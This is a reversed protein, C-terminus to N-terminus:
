APQDASLVRRCVRLRLVPKDLMGHPQAVLQARLSRMSVGLADMVGPICRYHLNLIRLGRALSFLVSTFVTTLLLASSYFIFFWSDRRRVFPFSDSDSRLPATVWLDTEPSIKLIYVLCAWYVWGVMQQVYSM